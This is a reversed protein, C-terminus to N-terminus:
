SRGTGPGRLRTRSTSSAPPTSTKIGYFAAIGGAAPTSAGFTWTYDAPESATAVKTWVSKRLYFSYTANVVQTWGTPPTIASTGRVTVQAVLLDKEATGAPKTITLSAAGAGTNASASTRHTVAPDIVYPLPLDADDLELALWWGTSGEELSWRLGDPTVDKGDRDLVTVAGDRGLRPHLRTALKWRWTKEGQRKTVTLFEETKRGNVVITETGFDTERTVGHVHRRWQAGGVDQSVVSVSVGWHSVTYGREHIRVDVGTAPKREMPAAAKEPGLADELFGPVGTDLKGVGALVVVALFVAAAAAIAAATRVPSSSRLVDAPEVDTSGHEPPRLPPISSM